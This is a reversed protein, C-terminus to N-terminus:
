FGSGERPDSRIQMVYERFLIGGDLYAEALENLGHDARVAFRKGDRGFAAIWWEAEAAHAAVEEEVPVGNQLTECDDSLFCAEGDVARRVHTAEHVLIAALVDALGSRVISRDVM